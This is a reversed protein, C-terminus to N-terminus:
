EFISFIVLLELWIVMFNWLVLKKLSDNKFLLKYINNELFYNKLTTERTGYVWIFLIVIRFFKQTSVFVNESHKPGELIQFKLTYWFHM